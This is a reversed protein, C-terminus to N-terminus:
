GCIRRLQLDMCAGGSVWFDFCELLPVRSLVSGIAEPTFLYPHVEYHKPSLHVGISDDSANPTRVFAVGGNNMISSLKNFAAVPDPFHEIVHVMTVMDFKEDGFDHSMFDGHVVDMGLAAGYDTAHVSGEIGLTKPVGLESFCKLLYPYRCGVDLVSTPSHKAVLISALGHNVSKDAESMEFGRGLDADSEYTGATWGPQMWAKCSMCQVYPNDIAGRRPLAFYEHGCAICPTCSRDSDVICLSAPFSTGIGPSEVHGDM